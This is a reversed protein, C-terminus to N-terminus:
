TTLYPLNPLHRLGLKRSIELNRFIPKVRLQLAASALLPPYLRQERL